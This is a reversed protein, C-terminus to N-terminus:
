RSGLAVALLAARIGCRRSCSFSLPGTVPVGHWSGPVGAAPRSQCVLTRCRSGEAFVPGGSAGVVCRWRAM